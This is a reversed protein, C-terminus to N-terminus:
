KNLEAEARKLEERLKALRAKAERQPDNVYAKVRAELAPLQVDLTALDAVLQEKERGLSGLLDEVDALRTRKHTREQLLRDLQRADLEGPILADTPKSKGKPKPQLYEHGNHPDRKWEYLDPSQCPLCMLRHGHSAYIKATEDPIADVRQCKWCTFEVLEYGEYTAPLDPKRTEPKTM